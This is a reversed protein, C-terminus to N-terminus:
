LNNLKYIKILSFKPTEQELVYIKGKDVFLFVGKIQSDYIVDHEKNYIQLFWKGAFINKKYIQDPTINVYQVFINNNLRDFDIKVFDTVNTKYEVFSKFSSQTKVPDVKKPIPKYFIPKRGFTKIINYKEDLENIYFSGSQLAYWKKKNGWTLLTNTNTGLFGLIKKNYYIKDWKLVEESFKCKEDLIILSKYKKYYETKMVSYPYVASFIFNNNSKLAPVLQYIVKSDLNKSEIYNLKSDYINIKRLKPSFLYLSDDTNEMSFIPFPSYIYEGPGKGERGIKKIFKFKSSFAVIQKNIVDTFLVYNKWKFTSAGIKGITNKKTYNIKISDILLLKKNIDIKSNYILNQESNENTCSVVLVIILIFSLISKM